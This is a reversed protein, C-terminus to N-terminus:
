VVRELAFHHVKSSPSLRGPSPLPMPLFDLRRDEFLTSGQRHTANPPPKFMTRNAPIYVATFELFIPLNRLISDYVTSLNTLFGPLLASFRNKLLPASITLAFSSCLIKHTPLDEIVCPFAAASLLLEAM